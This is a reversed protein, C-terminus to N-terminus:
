CLNGCCFLNMIDRNKNDITMQIQVQLQARPFQELKTLMSPTSKKGLLVKDITQQGDTYTTRNTPTEMVNKNEKRLQSKAQRFVGNIAKNFQHDPIAGNQLEVFDLCSFFFM